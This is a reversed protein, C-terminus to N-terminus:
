RTALARNYEWVAENLADRGSGAIFAGIMLGVFGGLALVADGDTALGDAAGLSGVILSVGGIAMFTTGTNHRSRFTAALEQAVPVGAFTDDMNGVFFGVGQVKTGDSGRIVAQGGFVSMRVRLACSEFTCSEFSPVDQAAGEQSGLAIGCGVLLGFLGWRAVRDGLRRM